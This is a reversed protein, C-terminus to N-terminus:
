LTDSFEKQMGNSNEFTVTILKKVGNFQYSM